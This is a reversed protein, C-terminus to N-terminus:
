KSTDVSFNAVRLKGDVFGGGFGLSVFKNKLVKKLM